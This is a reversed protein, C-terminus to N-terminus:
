QENRSKLAVVVPSAVFVSSYTGIVVGIILAFAFGRLVPGGAIFLVAVVIFTTLSTVVTRSLTQNISKNVVTRYPDTKFINAYERIRDFIIVTDNLSRFLTTYPFLTTRPTSKPPPLSM